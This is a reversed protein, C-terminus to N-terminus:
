NNVQPVAFELYLKVALSGIELSINNFNSVCPLNQGIAVATSLDPAKSVHIWENQTQQTATGAFLGRFPHKYYVGTDNKEDNVPQYVVAGDYSYNFKSNLVNGIAYGVPFSPVVSLSVPALNKVNTQDLHTYTRMFSIRVGKVRFHTYLKTMDVFERSSGAVTYDTNALSAFVNAYQALSASSFSYFSEFDDSTILPTPKTTTFVYVPISVEIVRTETSTLIDKKRTSSRM